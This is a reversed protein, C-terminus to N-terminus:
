DSSTRSSTVSDASSAAWPGAMCDSLSLHKMMKWTTACACVKVQADAERIDHYGAIEGSVAINHKEEANNIVLATPLDVINYFLALPLMLSSTYQAAVCLSVIQYPNLEMSLLTDRMLM